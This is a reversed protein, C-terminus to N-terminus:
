YVLKPKISIDYLPLRDSRKLREEMKAKEKGCVKIGKEYSTEAMHIIAKLRKWIFNGARNLVTEVTDLLYGNWSKELGAWYREIANYKSHYPPYYVLHINLATADAFETMRLLFQTRRGSCEPGNDMNIVLRKIDSLEQKRENWWLFLGDVMFDSTKYSDSFFLFARGSVPELIGEPILKEDVQMDHDWAKVPELGRSHGHRSYEGIKVTAKTDISIRLTEPYGDALANIEWVNEFIADTEKTKKQVKTNEVTRLRYGHRNLINFITQLAPLEEKSWGRSLLAEYVAKATMNTYLLTTRLSSESQSHPEMIEIIDALLQPNKEEAKPKRRNSLDNICLIETRFENMGLEATNRNWGFVDEAVRSKGDLISITVDGMASRREPWPIMDVLRGILGIIQPSVGNRIVTSTKM